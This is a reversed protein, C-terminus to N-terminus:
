GLRRYQAFRRSWRHLCFMRGLDQPKLGNREILQRAANAAMTATDEYVDPLAMATLGLGKTLKDPEIGREVALTEIPLYHRPIYAAIDDIGVPSSHVTKSRM